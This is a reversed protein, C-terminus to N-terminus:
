YNFYKWYWRSDLEIDSTIEFLVEKYKVADGSIQVDITQPNNATFNISYNDLEKKKILM